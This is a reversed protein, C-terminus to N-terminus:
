KDRGQRQVNKKECKVVVLQISEARIKTSHEPMCLIKYM